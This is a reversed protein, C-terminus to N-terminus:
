HKGFTTASNCVYGIKAVRACVVVKWKNRYIFPFRTVNIGQRIQTSYIDAGLANRASKVVAHSERNPPLLVTFSYKSYNPFHRLNM